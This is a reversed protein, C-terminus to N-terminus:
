VDSCSIVTNFLREYRKKTNQKNIIKKLDDVLSRGFDPLGKEENYVPIVVSITNM